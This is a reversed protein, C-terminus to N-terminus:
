LYEQVDKIEFNTAINTYRHIQDLILFGILSSKMTFAASDVVGHSLTNRSIFSNDGHVDFDKFFNSLIFQSFKEPFLRSISHTHNTINKQVHDSLAEQRRGEKDPNARIFDDRLIAEIRPYLVHIAGDYDNNSHYNLAKEIFSFHNSIKENTQIEKLWAERNEIFKSNIKEEIATTDWGLKIHNLLTKQEDYDIFSFPFWSSALILKWEEENLDFIDYFISESLAAGILQGVDYDIPHNNEGQLAPGFDYCMIRDWGNNMLVVYSCDTPFSIDKFDVKDIHYIDNKRVPDGVQVAKSVVVQAFVEVENLYVDVELNSKIIAILTKVQSPHFDECAENLIQQPYGEVKRIFDKGYSSLSIGRFQIQLSEGAKAAGLSYGAPMEDLQITKKM